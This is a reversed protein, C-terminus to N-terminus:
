EGQLIRRDLVQEMLKWGRTSEENIDYPEFGYDLYMNIAKYSTTQTTLYTKQHGLTKLQEMAASLLPKSLKQGQYDRKIAVFHIRGMEEEDEAINGFWATTTGVTEGSENDIFLCRDPMLNLHQGFEKDFRKEGADIYEFEGASTEVTAWIKKDGKKYMRITYGAPIEFQPIHELNERVMKLKIYEMTTRWSNITNVNNYDIEICHLFLQKDYAM